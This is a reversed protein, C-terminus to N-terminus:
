GKSGAGVAQAVNAYGDKKLLKVLGKNIAKITGPGKYIMGTILQVLSAGATIYAYADEPTFIGGCGILIFRSGAKKRFHRVLRLAKAAQVKGSIGGRYPEHQKKPSKLKLKSRDKVLNSVVFGTIWPRSSAVTMLEDAEKESLDAGVKLFVPTAFTLKENEIRFLLKELLKPDCYNTPDYTNPCSLNIVLFDGADKLLTLGKVWDDLKEKDDTFRRNTKAVSVGVPFAFPRSLRPLLAEAGANKLGYNVIIAEDKVLRKLRPRPNGDYPEATISGVEEFGFGLSPLIRMLRCEKDFGAALGVPSEFAIGAVTIRLAPHRYGYCAALAWRAPPFGGLLHGARVFRDHIKEPDQLFLIPRLLREYLFTM